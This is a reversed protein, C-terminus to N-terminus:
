DASGWVAMREGETPRLRPASLAANMAQRLLEPKIPKEVVGAMGAEVYARRVEAGAHATVAVIPIDRERGPLERIGRVAQVGDMEPMSIDMLVLDFDGNAVASIAERGGEVAEAVCGFMECLAEAVVRNTANDDVILVRIAEDGLPEPSARPPDVLSVPCSFSLTVTAGRGPNDTTAIQGGLGEIISRCVEIEPLDTAAHLDLPQLGASVGKLGDHRVEVTINAMALTSDAKVGVEVSRAGTPEFAHHIIINVAQKVTDWRAIAAIGPDGEYRVFLSVRQERVYSSWHAELSSTFDSLRLLSPDDGAIEHSAVGIDALGSLRSPISGGANWLSLIVATGAFPNKLSWAVGQDEPDAREWAFASRGSIVQFGRMRRNTKVRDLVGALGDGRGGWQPARTAKVISQLLESERAPSSSRGRPASSAIGRGNDVLVVTVEGRDVAAAMLWRPPAAVSVSHQIVNDILENLAFRVVSLTGPDIEGSLWETVDNARSSTTVMEATRVPVGARFVGLGGEAKAHLWWELPTGAPPSISIPPVDAGRQLEHIAAILLISAPASLHSVASLDIQVSGRAHAAERLSTTFRLLKGLGIRRHDIGPPAHLTITGVAAPRGVAKALRNIQVTDNFVTGAIIAGDFRAHSLNFESLQEGSLDVGAFDAHVFDSGPDLGSIEVLRRFGLDRKAQALATLRATMELEAGM